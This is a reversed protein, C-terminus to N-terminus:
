LSNLHNFDKVITYLFEVPPLQTQIGLLSKIKETVMMVPQQNDHHLNAELARQILEIDKSNLQVAQPFTATYTQQPTIFVENATIEQQPIIKIVSTTAVLDGIRQGKDGAAIVIVALAGGLFYFDVFGFIWRLLYNGISPRTGDIRVVQISMVRKGPTQGNMFIEFVLSYFFWPVALAIIWLWWVELDFNIFLAAVAVSYAILIVRDLLHALIRDGVSAVPYQIFVNQTTRVNITQMRKFIRYSKRRLTFTL